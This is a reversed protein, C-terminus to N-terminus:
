CRLPPMEYSLPPPLPTDHRCRTAYAARLPTFIAAYAAHYDDFLCRLTPPTAEEAALPAYPTLM